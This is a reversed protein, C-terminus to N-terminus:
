LTKASRHIGNVVNVQIADREQRGVDSRSCEISLVAPLRFTLIVDSKGRGLDQLKFRLDFMQDRRVWGVEFGTKNAFVRGFQTAESYPKAFVQLRNWGHRRTAVRRPDGCDHFHIPTKAGAEKM